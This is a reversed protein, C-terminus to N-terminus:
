TEPDTLVFASLPTHPNLWYRDIELRFWNDADSITIVFPIIYEGATQYDELEARYVMERDSNYVEIARVEFPARNVFIKEVVRKRSDKLVLIEGDGAEESILEATRFDRIPAEGALLRIVSRIKVPIEIARKLDPDTSRAKFFRDQVHSVAYIHEGDAAVGTAPRGSIDLIGFRFKDPRSGIWAARATQLVGNQRLSVKGTGKLTKLDPNRNEAQTLVELVEPSLDTPRVGGGM